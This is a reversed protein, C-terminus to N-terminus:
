TEARAARQAAEHRERELRRREAEIQDEVDDASRRLLKVLGDLQEAASSFQAAAPDLKTACAEIWPGTAKVDDWASRIKGRGRRLQDADKALRDALDRMGAPDGIATM